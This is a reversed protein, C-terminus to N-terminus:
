SIKTLDEDLEAKSMLQFDSKVSKIKRAVVDLGDHHSSLGLSNFIKIRQPEEPHQSGYTTLVFNMQNDFLEEPTDKSKSLAKSQDATYASLIGLLYTKLREPTKEPICAAVAQHKLQSPLSRSNFPGVFTKAFDPKKVLVQVIVGPVAAAIRAVTLHTSDKGKSGGVHLAYSDQLGKFFVKGADSTKKLNKDTVSGKMIAITVVDVLDQKIQASTRGKGKGRLIFESMVLNPNFGVYQFADTVDKSMLSTPDMQALDNWFKDLEATTIKVVAVAEPVTVFSSGAASAAKAIKGKRKEEARKKGEIRRTLQDLEGAELMIAADELIEAEKSMDDNFQMFYDQVSLKATAM